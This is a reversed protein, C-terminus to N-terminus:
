GNVTITCEGSNINLTNLGTDVVQADGITITAAGSRVADFSIILLDGDGTVGDTTGYRTNDYYITGSGEDATIIPYTSAGDSRLFDGEYFGRLDLIDKNYMIRFSVAYVDTETNIRVETYFPSGRSVSVTDPSFYLGDTPPAPPEQPPQSPESSGGDSGGGGSIGTESTDVPSTDRSTYFGGNYNSDTAPQTEGGAQPMGSLSPSSSNGLSYANEQQNGFAFFGTISGTIAGSFFASVVIASFMLYGLIM